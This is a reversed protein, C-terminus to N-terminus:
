RSTPSSGCHRRPATGCGRSPAALGPPAARGRRPRCPRRSAASCRRRTTPSWRWRAATRAPRAPTRAPPWSGMLSHFRRLAEPDDPRTALLGGLEELAARQGATTFVDALDAVLARDAPPGAAEALAAAGGSSGPITEDAWRKSPWIVGAFGLGPGGSAPLLAPVQEFFRRYLSTAQGRDNNWGHAFVILDAIGLGPAGSVLTDADDANPRGKEDFAVEWYPLGAIEGM